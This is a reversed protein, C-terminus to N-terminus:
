SYSTPTALQRGAVWGVMPYPSSPAFLRITFLRGIWRVTEGAGRGGNGQESLM